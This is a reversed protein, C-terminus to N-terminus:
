LKVQLKFVGLLLPYLRGSPKLKKKVENLGAIIKILNINIKIKGTKKNQLLSLIIPGKEGSIIGGM